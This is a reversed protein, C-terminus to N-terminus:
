NVDLSKFAFRTWNKGGRTRRELFLGVLLALLWDRRNGSLANRGHARTRTNECAVSTIGLAHM